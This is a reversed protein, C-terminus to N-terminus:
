PSISAELKPDTKLLGAEDSVVHAAEYLLIDKAKKNAKEMALDDSLDRESSLM